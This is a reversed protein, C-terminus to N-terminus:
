PFEEKEAKGAEKYYYRKQRTSWFSIHGGALSLAKSSYIEMANCEM